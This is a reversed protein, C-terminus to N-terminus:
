GRMSWFIYILFAPVAFTIVLLHVGKGAYVVGPLDIWGVLAISFLVTLVALEVALVGWKIWAPRRRPVNNTARWAELQDELAPDTPQYDPM